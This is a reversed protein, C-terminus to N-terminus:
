AIELSLTDYALHIGPPLEAEVDAHLGMQHSIHTLYTSTAEAARAVAIAEQLSFHSMHPQKRLANIVLIRSGRIKELEQRDIHNADTIYTLDGIRFGLVPMGAHHVQVPIIQKQGVVFPELGITHFEIQPLGPYTNEPDFAYSFERRIAQQVQETAYLPMPRGSFYNFARIDDLGALHDKHSHTYLVADLHNIGARLMQQRFDPGTDICYRANSETILM